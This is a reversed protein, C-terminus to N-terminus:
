KLGELLERQKKSLKKPMQVKLSIYHDGKNGPNNLKPMGRGKLRLKKEPNTLEPIDIEIEGWVTQIKASTGLLFDFYDVQIESHIDQGQRSLGQIPKIKVVLYLDGPRSGRYGAEGKGSVRIRDGNDVGVPIDIEIEEKKKNFGKGSCVKCKSEFIKGIGDCTPCVQQQQITGFFSQTTKYM